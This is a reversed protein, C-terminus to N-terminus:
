DNWNMRYLSPSKEYINFFNRNFTAL